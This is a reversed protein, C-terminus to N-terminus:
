FDSMDPMRDRRILCVVERNYGKEELLQLFPTATSSLSKVYLDKLDATGIWLTLKVKNVQDMLLAYHEENKVYRIIDM